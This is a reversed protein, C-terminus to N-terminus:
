GGCARKANATALAPRGATSSRSGARRGIRHGGQHRDGDRRPTPRTGARDAARKRGGRRLLVGHRSFQHGLRLLSRDHGPQRADNVGASSMGAIPWCGLAVASVRIGTTGLNRYEMAGATTTDTM